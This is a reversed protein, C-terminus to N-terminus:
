WGATRNTWSTVRVRKQTCNGTTYDYRIIYWDTDGDAASLDTNLGKYTCNGDGDYDFKVNKFYIGKALSELDEVSFEIDEMLKPKMNATDWVCNLVMLTRSDQHLKLPVPRWTGDEAQCCLVGPYLSKKDTGIDDPLPM